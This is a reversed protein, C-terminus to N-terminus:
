QPSVEKRPTGAFKGSALAFKGVAYEGDHGGTVEREYLRHFEELVVRFATTTLGCGEINDTLVIARM